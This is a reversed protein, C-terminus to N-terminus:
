IAPLRSDREKQKTNHQRELERRQFRWSKGVRPISLTSPPQAAPKPEPKWGLLSAAKQVMTPETPTPRNTKPRRLADLFAGWGFGLLILAAGTIMGFDFSSIVM